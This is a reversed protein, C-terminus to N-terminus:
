GNEMDYLTDVILQAAHLMPLIANGSFDLDRKVVVGNDMQASLEVICTEVGKKNIKLRINKM